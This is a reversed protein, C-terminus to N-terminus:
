RSRLLALRSEGPVCCLWALLLAVDRMASAGRVVAVARRGLWVPWVAATGRAAAM